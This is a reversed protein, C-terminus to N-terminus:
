PSQLNSPSSNHNEIAFTTGIVLLIFGNIYVCVYLFLDSHMDVGYLETDISIPVNIQVRYSQAPISESAYEVECSKTDISIPVNIQVLLILFSNIQVSLGM